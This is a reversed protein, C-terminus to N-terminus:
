SPNYGKDPPAQTVDKGQSTVDIVRDLPSPAVSTNQAKILREALARDAPDQSSQLSKLYEEASQEAM